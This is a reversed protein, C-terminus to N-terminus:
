NADGALVKLLRMGHIDNRLQANDDVLKKNTAFSEEYAERSEKLQQELIREKDHSRRLAKRTQAISQKMDDKRPVSHSRDVVQPAM